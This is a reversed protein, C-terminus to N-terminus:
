NMVSGRGAANRLPRVVLRTTAHPPAPGADRWAPGSAAAAAALVLLPLLVRM